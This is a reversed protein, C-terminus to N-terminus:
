NLVKSRALQRQQELALYEEETLSTPLSLAKQGLHRLVKYDTDKLLKLAEESEQKAAAQASVDATVVQYQNPITVLPELLVLGSQETIRSIETALEETTLSSLSYSGAPKGFAQVQECSEVWSEAHEQTDFKGENTVVGQKLISVKIM